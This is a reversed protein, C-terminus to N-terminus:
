TNQDYYEKMDGFLSSVPVNDELLMKIRAVAHEKTNHKIGWAGHFLWHHEQITIGFTNRAYSFWSDKINERGIGNYAAHGIVCGCTMQKVHKIAKNGNMYSTMDFKVKSPAELVEILKQLNENNM